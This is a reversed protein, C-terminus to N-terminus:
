KKVIKREVIGEATILKAIYMGQSLSSVSISENATVQKNMVIRGNLDILQLNATGSIVAVRFANTIPNPYINISEELLPRLATTMEVINTFDKWQDAAKYLAKSGIPVYLICKTTNIENFVSCINHLDVPITPYAYISMINPCNQLAACGISSVLYPINISTLGTCNDFSGKGIFVISNPIHITTISTDFNFAYNGISIVSNPINIAKLNMCFQFACDAIGTTGNKIDITTNEPMINKYGLIWNNLYVIGSLQSEYWKTDNFANEGISSVSSPIVISSIGGCNAFAFSGIFTVSSPINVSPLNTCGWFAGSGITIVSNPIIISKLGICGM